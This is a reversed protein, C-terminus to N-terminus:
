PWIEEHMMAWLNLGYFHKITPDGEQVYTYGEQDLHYRTMKTTTKLLNVFFHYLMLSECCLEVKSNAILGQNGTGELSVLCAVMNSSTKCTALQEDEAGFFWSLYACLQDKTLKTPHKSLINMYFGLNVNASSITNITLPARAKKGTSSIPVQLIAMSYKGAKEALGAFILNHNGVSCDIQENYPSKVFNIYKAIGTSSLPDISGSYLSLM